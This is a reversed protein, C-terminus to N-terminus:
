RHCVSCSTLFSTDRIEYQRALERGDYLFFPTGVQDALAALPYSSLDLSPM